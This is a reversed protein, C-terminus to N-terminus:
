RTSESVECGGQWMSKLLIAAELDSAFYLGYGIKFANIM